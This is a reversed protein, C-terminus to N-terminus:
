RKFAKVKKQGACTLILGSILIIVLFDLLYPPEVSSLLKLILPFLSTISFCFFLLGLIIEKWQKTTKIYIVLTLIALIAYFISSVAFITNDGFVGIKEIIWTIAAILSFVVFFNIISVLSLLLWAGTMLLPIQIYRNM